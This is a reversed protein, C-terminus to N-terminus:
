RSGQGGPHPHRSKRMWPSSSDAREFLFAGGEPGDFPAGIIARSDLVDVSNGFLDFVGTEPASEQSHAKSSLLIAGIALAAM